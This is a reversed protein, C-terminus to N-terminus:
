RPFGETFGKALFPKRAAAIKACIFCSFGLKVVVKPDVILGKTDFKPHAAQIIGQLVSVGLAAADGLGLEVSAEFGDIFGGRTALYFSDERCSAFETELM